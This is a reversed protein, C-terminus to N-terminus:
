IIMWIWRVKIWKLSKWACSLLPIPTGVLVLDNIQLRYIAVVFPNRPQWPRIVVVVVASICKNFKELQFRFLNSRASQENSVEDQQHEAPAQFEWKCRKTAWEPSSSSSCAWLLRYRISLKVKSWVWQSEISNFWLKLYVLLIPLKTAQEPFLM